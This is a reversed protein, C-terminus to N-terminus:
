GGPGRAPSRTRPTSGGPAQPDGRPGTASETFTAAPEDGPLGRVSIVAKMGGHRGKALDAAGALSYQTILNMSCKPCTGPERQVVEPHMSCYYVAAEGERPKQPLLPVETTSGDRFEFRVTGRAQGVPMPNFDASYLFVRIGRPDFLTEFCHLRSTSVQGGHLRCRQEAQGPVQANPDPAATGPAAPTPTAPTPAAVTGAAAVCATAALVILLRKM